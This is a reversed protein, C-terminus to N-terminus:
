LYHRLEQVPIIDLQGNPLRRVVNYDVLKGQEYEMRAIDNPSYYRGPSLIVRPVDKKLDEARRGIVCAEEYRTIVHDTLSHDM